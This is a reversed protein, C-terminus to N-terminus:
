KLEKILCRNAEIRQGFGLKGQQIFERVHQEYGSVMRKKPNDKPDPRCPKNLRYYTVIKVSPGIGSVIM